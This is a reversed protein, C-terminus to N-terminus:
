MMKLAEAVFKKAKQRLGAHRPARNKLFSNGLHFMKYAAPFDM